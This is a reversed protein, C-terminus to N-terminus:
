LTAKDFLNKVLIKKQYSTLQVSFHICWVKKHITKVPILFSIKIM